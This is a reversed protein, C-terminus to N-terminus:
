GTLHPRPFLQRVAASPGILLSGGYIVSATLIITPGSALGLHFSIILGVLGSMAATGAAILFMTPLTRTRLQAIAAPLMM